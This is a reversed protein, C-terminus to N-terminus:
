GRGPNNRFQSQIARAYGHRGRCPSVQWFIAHIQQRVGIIWCRRSTAPLKCLSDALSEALQLHKTEDVARIKLSQLESEVAEHRFQQLAPM